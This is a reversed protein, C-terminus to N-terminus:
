FKHLFGVSMLGKFQLEANEGDKTIITNDFRPNLMIRTSIFRNLILNCVLEWDIEVRKYNTYFSFKSEIQIEKVPSYYNTIRVTSGFESLRNQGKAIGFQNPDVRPDNIAIFKYAIPSVLLSILKKYKYDLGIAMNYRFPSLFATKKETNKSDKYIDFFQTSLDMSGTLYYDKRIKVGFKSNLKLVDDNVKGTQLDTWNFGMRWEGTNEWQILKKDDYNLKGNIMSLLALASNGGQHWNDSIMTGSFQSMASAKHNWLPYKIGNLDLSTAKHYILDDDEFSIKKTLRGTLTNQHLDKSDHLQDNHFAILHTAYQIIKRKTKKRLEIVIENPIHTTKLPKYPPLATSKGYIIYHYNLITNWDFKDYENKYVLDILLPNGELILSDILNEKLTQGQIVIDEIISISDKWNSNGLTDTAQIGISTNLSNNAPADTNNEPAYNTTSNEISPTSKIPFQLQELVSDPDIVSVTDDTMKNTTNGICVNPICCGLVLLTAFFFQLKLNNKM